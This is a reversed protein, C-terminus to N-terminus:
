VSKIIMFLPLGCGLTSLEPFHTFYDVEARKRLLFFAFQMGLLRRFVCRLIAAGLGLFLCLFLSGFGSRAAQIAM